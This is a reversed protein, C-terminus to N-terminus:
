EGKDSYVKEQTALDSIKNKVSQLNNISVEDKSIGMTSLAEATIARAKDLDNGTLSMAFDKINLMLANKKNSIDEVLGEAELQDVKKQLNTKEPAAKTEEVVVDEMEEYTPESGLLVRLCRGRSKQEAKEFWSQHDTKSQRAHGTCKAIESDNTEYFSTKFVVYDEGSALIESVLRGDPYKENMIKILEDVKVYNDLNFKAM